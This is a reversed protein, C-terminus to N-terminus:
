TGRWSSTHPLPSIAGCMRLRPVLHLHDGERGPRKVGPSLSVPTMPYSAPHDESGTQVFHRLSFSGAKGPISSRNDM